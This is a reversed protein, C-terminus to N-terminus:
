ARIIYDREDIRGLLVHCFHISWIGDAVEELGIAHQKLANAIFLLRRKFRFTGADQSDQTPSTPHQHPRIKVKALHGALFLAVAFVITAKSHLSRVRAIYEAGTERANGRTTAPFVLNSTSNGCRLHRRNQPCTGVTEEKNRKVATLRWVNM